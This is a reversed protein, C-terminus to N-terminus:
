QLISWIPTNQITSLLRPPSQRRHLAAGGMRERFSRWVKSDRYISLWSWDPSDPEIFKDPVIMLISRGHSKSTRCAMDMAGKKLNLRGAALQWSQFPFLLTARLKVSWWSWFSPMRSDAPYAHRWRPKPPLDCISFRGGNGIRKESCGRVTSDSLNYFFRSDKRLVQSSGAFMELLLSM